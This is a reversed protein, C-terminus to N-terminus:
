KYETITYEGKEYGYGDGADNYLEFSCPGDGFRKVIVENSLAATNLAPVATPILTNEPVYVPIEDIAKTVTITQGGEFKQGTFFDYWSQGQPLYIDRTNSRTIIPCVMMSPGLM